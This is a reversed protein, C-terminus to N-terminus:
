DGIIDGQINHIIATQDEIDDREIVIQLEDGIINKNYQELHERLSEESIHSQQSVVIKFQNILRIKHQECIENLSKSIKNLLYTDHM